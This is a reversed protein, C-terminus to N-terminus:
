KITVTNGKFTKFILRYVINVIGLAYDCIGYM